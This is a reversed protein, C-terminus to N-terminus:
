ARDGALLLQPVQTYHWGGGNTRTFVWVMDYRDGPWSPPVPDVSGLHKVIDSISEHEWCVLSAGTRANLETALAQEEGRGFKTVVPLNLRAALPVVTQAPRLGQSDGGLGAYVADPRLLGAPPGNRTSGFLEALAGARVWGTVTLAHKDTTGDETVGHPKGSSPKEAHRIIMITPPVRAAEAGPVAPANSAIAANLPGSGPDGPAVIEGPGGGAEDKPVKKQAACGALALGAGGLGALRLLARRSTPVTGSEAASIV